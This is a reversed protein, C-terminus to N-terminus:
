STESRWIIKTFKGEDKTIVELHYQPEGFGLEEETLKGIRELVDGVTEDSTWNEEHFSLQVKKITFIYKKM